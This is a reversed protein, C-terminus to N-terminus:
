NGVPIVEDVEPFYKWGITGYRSKKMYVQRRGEKNITVDMVMSADYDIAVGGRSSGLNTKQLIFVFITNPFQHRLEDLVIAQCKLKGFSDVIVVDFAAAKQKVDELEPLDFLGVTDPLPYRKVIDKLAKGIGMELSYYAVTLDVLGFGRALAVSFNSKGAGPDGTLAIAMKYREMCGLFKGINGSLSFTNFNLKILESAKLGSSTNLAHRRQHASPTNQRRKQTTAVEMELKHIKPHIEKLLNKQQELVIENHQISHQHKKLEMLPVFLSAHLINCEQELGHRIQKMIEPTRQFLKYAIFGSFLATVWNPRVAFPIAAVHFIHNWQQETALTM